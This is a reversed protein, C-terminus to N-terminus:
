PGSSSSSNQVPGMNPRYREERISNAVKRLLPVGPQVGYNNEKLVSQTHMESMLYQQKIDIVNTENRDWCM